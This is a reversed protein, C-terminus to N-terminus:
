YTSCHKIPNTINISGKYDLSFTIKYDSSHVIEFADSIYAEAWASSSRSGSPYCGALANVIGTSPNYSADAVAESHRGETDHSQIGSAYPESIVAANQILITTASQVVPFCLLIAFAMAFLFVLYRSAATM